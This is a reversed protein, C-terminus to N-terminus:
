RDNDPPPALFTLESEGEALGPDPDPVLRPHERVYRDADSEDEPTTPPPNDAKPMARLTTSLSASAVTTTGM